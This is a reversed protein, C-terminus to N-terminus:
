LGAIPTFYKLDFFWILLSLHLLYLKDPPDDGNFCYYLLPKAPVFLASQIFSFFTQLELPTDFHSAFNDVTKVCSIYSHNEKAYNQKCEKSEWEFVFTFYCLSTLLLLIFNLRRRVPAFIVKLYKFTHGIPAALVHRIGFKCIQFKQWIFIHWLALFYTFIGM